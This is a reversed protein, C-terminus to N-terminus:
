SIPAKACSDKAPVRHSTLQVADSNVRSTRGDAESAPDPGSQIMGDPRPRVDSQPAVAARTLLALLEPRLGDGRAAAVAHFSLFSTM